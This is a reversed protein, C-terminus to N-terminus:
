PWFPHRYPLRCDAGCLISRSTTRATSGEQWLSRFDHCNWVQNPTATNPRERARNHGQNAGHEIVPPLIPTLCLLEFMVDQFTGALKLVISILPLRLEYMIGLLM